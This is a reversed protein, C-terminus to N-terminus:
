LEDKPTGDNIDLEGLCAAPSGGEMRYVCKEEEVVRWITSEKSCSLVVLTSRQPGNWCQAGNEYKIAIKKGFGTDLAESEQGEDDDMVSPPEADIIEVSVFNGMITNSGGRQPKQTTSQMFCHEYVYEGSEVSQCVDQLARFIGNPGYDKKLDREANDIETERSSRENKLSELFARADIVARSESASSASGTDPLVGNTVLFTRISDLQMSVWERITPPLYAEYSYVISTLLTCFLLTFKRGADSEVNEYDSWVIGYNDDDRLLEEAIRERDYDQIYRGGRSEYDEWAKSARKVGEDNFNPNYEEKFTALIGELERLKWEADYKQQKMIRLNTKLDEIREKAADRLKDLKGDKTREKKVRLKDVEQAEVLKREAIAIKGEDDVIAATLRTVTSELDGRAAAAKNVLEARQSMASALAKERAAARSKAKAGVASCRDECKVGGVGAWEDSGDCCIAYDCVGDNVITVPAYAPRHGKNKCYFGPLALTSNVSESSPVTSHVLL